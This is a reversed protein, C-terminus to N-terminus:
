EIKLIFWDDRSLLRPQSMQRQYSRNRQGYRGMSQQNSMSNDDNRIRFTPPELTFGLWITGKEVGYITSGDLPIKMELSVLRREEDSSIEVGDIEIQHKDVFGYEARNDGDFREVIMVRSFIEEYLNTMLDVNEPQRSWESDTTFSNYAGPIERLLNFSGTPYGIGVSRRREESNSLYVILGSQRIARDLTLSKVDAFIYLIDDHIYAHYQIDDSENLLTTGTSWGSLSGDVPLPDEKQQIAIQKPGSCSILLSLTFLLISYFLLHKM